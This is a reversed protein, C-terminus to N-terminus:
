AGHVAAFVEEVDLAEATLFYLVQQGTGTGELIQQPLADPFNRRQPTPMHERKEVLRACPGTRGELDRGLPETVFKVTDVLLTTFPSDIM